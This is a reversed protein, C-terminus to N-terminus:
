IQQHFGSVKSFNKLFIYVSEHGAALAITEDITINQNTLITVKNVSM